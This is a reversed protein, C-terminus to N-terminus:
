VPFRNFQPDSLRAVCADYVKQMEEASIMDIAFATQRMHELAGPTCGRIAIREVSSLRAMLQEANKPTATYLGM